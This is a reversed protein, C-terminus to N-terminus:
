KKLTKNLIAADKKAKEKEKYAPICYKGNIYWNEGLAISQDYYLNCAYRDYAISLIAFFPILLAIIGLIFFKPM